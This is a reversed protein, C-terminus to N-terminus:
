TLFLFAYLRICVFLDAHAALSNFLCLFLFLPLLASPLSSLLFLSVFLGSLRVCVSLCVYSAVSLTVSLHISVWAKWIAVRSSVGDRKKGNEPKERETTSSCSGEKIEKHRVKKEKKTASM